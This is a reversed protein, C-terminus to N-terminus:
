MTKEYGFEFDNPYLEHILQITDGDLDQKGLHTETNREQAGLANLKRLELHDLGFAKMLRGFQTSLDDELKLVYDMMRVEHPGVIFDYQPTFHGNDLLYGLASGDDNQRTQLKDRLWVNMYSADQLRSRQCQDPRWELVKLTCIYTFESVMREYSERVVAFLESQQYPNINAVPFLYAPIHWWGVHHPWDYGQPYTCIDRKPKHRFLCSGWDMQHKGAAYEIATGATKPIHFFKLLRKGLTASPFSQVYDLETTSTSTEEDDHLSPVDEEEQQQQQQQQQDDNGEEEPPSPLIVKAHQALNDYRQLSSSSLENDTSLVSEAAFSSSAQLRTSQLRFTTKSSHVSATERFSSSSSSSSSDWLTGLLYILGLLLCLLCCQIIRRHRFLFSWLTPKRRRKIQM